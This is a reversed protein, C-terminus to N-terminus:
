LRHLLPPGTALERIRTNALQSLANILLVFLDVENLRNRVFCSCAPKFIDAHIVVIIRATNFATLAALTMFLLRKGFEDIRSVRSSGSNFAM